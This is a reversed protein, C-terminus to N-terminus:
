IPNPLDVFVHDVGFRAVLHAGLARVGFTETAYHGAAVFHIGSEVAQAMVREAPEGTVFADLGADVAEDLHGSAAGSVIGVTRIRDPGAPFSLPARGTLDTVRRVLEAPSIGDGAFRARCGIPRGRHVAFPAPEVCGLGEAILANNGIRPHGDLPLHYAALSIESALLIGLRRRLRGVVRPDDGDWFIGHHTLVLDARHDVAREFLALTASVGTVVTQVDSRGEVQLGNPCHDAFSGPELLGDLEALIDTLGAM